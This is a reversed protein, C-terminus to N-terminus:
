DEQELREQDILCADCLDEDRQLNFMRCDSCLNADCEVCVSISEPAFCVGCEGPVSM